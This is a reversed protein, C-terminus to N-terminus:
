CTIRHIPSISFSHSYMEAKSHNQARLLTLFLFRSSSSSPAGDKKFQIQMFENSYHYMHKHLSQFAHLISILFFSKRNSQSDTTSSHNTYRSWPLKIRIKPFVKLNATIIDQCAHEGKISHSYSLYSKAM